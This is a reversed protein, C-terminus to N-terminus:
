AVLCGTHTSGRMAKSGRHGPPSLKIKLFSALLACERGPHDSVLHSLPYAQHLAGCGAPRGQLRGPDAAGRGRAGGGARQRASSLTLTQSPRARMGLAAVTSAHSRIRLPSPACTAACGHSTLSSTGSHACMSPSEAQPACRRAAWHMRCAGCGRRWPPWPSPYCPMADGPTTMRFGM